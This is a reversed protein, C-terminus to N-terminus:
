NGLDRGVSLINEEKQCCQGGCQEGLQQNSPIEEWTIDGLTELLCSVSYHKQPCHLPPPHSPDHTFSQGHKGLRRGRGRGEGRVEEEEDREVRDRVSPSLGRQECGQVPTPLPREM